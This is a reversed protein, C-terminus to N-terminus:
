LLLGPMLGLRPPHKSGARGVGPHHLLLGVQFWPSVCWCPFWLLRLPLCLTRSSSGIPPKCFHYLTSMVPPCRCPHLLCHRAPLLPCPLAAGGPAAPPLLGQGFASSTQTRLRYENIQRVRASTTHMHLPFADDLFTEYARALRGPLTDFAPPWGSEWM